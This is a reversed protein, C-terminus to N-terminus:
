YKLGFFSESIHNPNNVGSGSGPDHNKLWVPDQNKLWGPAWIWPDFHCRIGSGLDVVSSFDMCMNTNQLTIRRMFAQFCNDHVM